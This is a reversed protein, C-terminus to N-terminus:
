RERPHSLHLAPAGLRVRGGRGAAHARAEGRQAGEEGAPEEEGGGGGRRARQPPRTLAATLLLSVEMSCRQTLVDEELEALRALVVQLRGPHLSGEHSLYGGMRPLEEKYIAFLSSLAGEAIDLTPLPPLFDNGVLMSLFVFDDIVRELDFGFPLVACAAPRRDV